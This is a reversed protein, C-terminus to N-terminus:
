GTLFRQMDLAARLKTRKQKHDVKTAATIAIDRETALAGVEAQLQASSCNKKRKSAQLRALACKTTEVGTRKQAPNHSLATM